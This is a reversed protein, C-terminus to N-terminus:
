TAKQCCHCHRPLWAVNDLSRYGCSQLECCPKQKRENGLEAILLSYQMYIIFIPRELCHGMSLFLSHECSINSQKLWSWFRPQPIFCGRGAGLSRRGWRWQCSCCYFLSSLSHHQRVWPWTSQSFLFGRLLPYFSQLIVYLPWTVGEWWSTFNSKMRDEWRVVRDNYGVCSRFTVQISYFHIFGGLISMQLSLKGGKWM